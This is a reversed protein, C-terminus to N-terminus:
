AVEFPSLPKLNSKVLELQPRGHWEVRWRVLMYGLSGRDQQIWIKNATPELELQHEMSRAPQNTPGTKTEWSIVVMAPLICKAVTNHQFKLLHFKNCIKNWSNSKAFVTNVGYPIFYKLPLHGEFHPLHNTTLQL